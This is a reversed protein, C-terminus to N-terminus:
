ADARPEPSKARRPLRVRVRTGDAATSTVDIVGGHEVVLQRSIFLGLGLADARRKQGKGTTFPSFLRALVEPAMHGQNHVEATVHDGEASLRLTVPADKGGHRVANGVVNSLVQELRAADWEGSLDGSAEVVFRGTPAGKQVELLVREAIVRLNAPAPNIPIGGSLRARSLDFIEELMKLMRTGSSELRRASKLVREDRSDEVLLKATMIITSVPNRLDHGVVALLEDNLRLTEEAERHRRYADVFVAVEHALASADLPTPLVDCLGGPFGEYVRARLREDATVFLLPIAAGNPDGRVLRAAQEAAAPACTLVIAGLTDAALHKAVDSVESVAIVDVDARRSVALAASADLAGVVLINTKLATSSSM